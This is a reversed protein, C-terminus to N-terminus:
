WVGSGAQGTLTTRSVGRSPEGWFARTNLWDRMPLQTATITLRDYALRHGGIELGPGFLNALEIICQPAKFWLGGVESDGRGGLGVPILEEIAFEDGLETCIREEDDTDDTAGIDALRDEEILEGALHGAGHAGHRGACFVRYAEDGGICVVGVQKGVEEVIEGEFRPLGSVIGKAFGVLISEEPACSGVDGGSKQEDVRGVDIGIGDDVPVTSSGDALCGIDEDGDQGLLFVVVRCDFLEETFRCLGVFGYDDDEVLAVELQITGEPGLPEIGETGFGADFGFQDVDCWVVAGGGFRSGEGDVGDSVVAVLFRFWGAVQAFLQGGEVEVGDFDASKATCEIAHEIFRGAQGGVESREACDDASNAAAASVSEAESM